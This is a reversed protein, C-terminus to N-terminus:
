LLSTIKWILPSEITNDESMWVHPTPFDMPFDGFQTSTEQTCAEVGGSLPISSQFVGSASCQPHHSYLFGGAKFAFPTILILM